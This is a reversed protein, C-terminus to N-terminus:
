AAKSITIISKQDDLAGESTFASNVPKSGMIESLTQEMVYAKHTFLAKNVADPADLYLQIRDSVHLDADKRAQQIMRVVDRAIGEAELEPTITTDLIVLADNTSLAQARDKFEPKPELQLVFEGALLKEGAIEVTGDLQKWEGKKSAPLIQKMKEPLRKGLVASNIQLRYDARKLIENYDASFTLSKVNVESEIIDQLQLAATSDFLLKLADESAIIDLTPLPQRVRIKSTNRVALAANCIDRVKEMAHLQDIGDPTNEVVLGYFQSPFDALHVSDENTLGRYIEDLTLPLLPAAAKCMVTLVTYLTDYASQKDSDLETKWFREKSRRIYWNNLADFFQMIYECATPTDYRDLSVKIGHVADACKVLIYKDM